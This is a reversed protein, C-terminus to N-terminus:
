DGQYGIVRTYTEKDTYLHGEVYLGLQTMLYMVEEEEGSGHLLNNEDSWIKGAHKSGDENEWNIECLKGPEYSEVKIEKVPYLNTPKIVKNLIGQRM